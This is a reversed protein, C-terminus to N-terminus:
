RYAFIEMPGLLDTTIKAYRPMAQLRKTEQESARYDAQTLWKCWHKVREPVLRHLRDGEGSAAATAKGTRKTRAM